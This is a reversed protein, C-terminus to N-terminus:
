AGEVIFSAMDYSNYCKHLATVLDPMVCLTLERLTKSTLSNLPTDEPKKSVLGGAVDIFNQITETLKWHYYTFSFEIIVKNPDSTYDVSFLENYITSKKNLIDGKEIEKEFTKYSAPEDGEAAEYWGVYWM